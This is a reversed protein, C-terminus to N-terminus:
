GHDNGLQQVILEALPRLVLLSACSHFHTSCQHDPGTVLPWYANHLDIQARLMAAAWQYRVPRQSQREALGAAETLLAVTGAHEAM